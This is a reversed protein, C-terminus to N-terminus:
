SLLTVSKVFALCFLSFVEVLRQVQGAVAHLEFHHLFVPTFGLDFRFELPVLLFAIINALRGGIPEVLSSCFDLQGVLHVGVLLPAAFSFALYLFHKFLFVRL